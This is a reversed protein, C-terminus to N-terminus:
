MCLYYLGLISGQPVGCKMINRKSEIGNFFVYQNRNLVYNNLLKYVNGHFGYRHMKSLLVAFAALDANVCIYFFVMWYVLGGYYIILYQGGSHCM